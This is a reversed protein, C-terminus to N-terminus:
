VEKIQFGYQASFMKNKLRYVPLKRTHSSKVDEVVKHGQKDRYTFDAVFKAVQKGNVILPFPVQRELCTIEGVQALARLMLWRESERKSDFTVGDVPTKDNRHKSGIPGALSAFKRSIRAAM